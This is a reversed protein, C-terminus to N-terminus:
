PYVENARTAFFVPRGEVNETYGELELKTSHGLWPEFVEPTYHASLVLGTKAGDEDLELGTAARGITGVRTAVPPTTRTVVTYRAGKYAFEPRLLKAIPEPEWDGLTVLVRSSDVRGSTYDPTVFYVSYSRGVLARVADVGDVPDAPRWAPTQGAPRVVKAVLVERRKAVPPRAPNHPDITDSVQARFALLSAPTEGGEGLFPNTDAPWWRDTAAQVPWVRGKDDKLELDHAALPFDGQIWPIARLTGAHPALEAQEVRLPVAFLEGQTFNKQSLFTDALLASVLASHEPAAHVVLAAQGQDGAPGPDDLKTDPTVALVLPSYMLHGGLKSYAGWYGWQPPVVLTAHVTAAAGAVLLSAALIRPFRFM